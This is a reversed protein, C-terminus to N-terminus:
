KPDALRALRVAGVRAGLLRTDHGGNISAPSVLPGTSVWLNNMGPRWCTGAVEWEYDAQGPPMPRAPFRCAGVTLAITPQRSASAAPTATITVLLATPRAMSFRIVSHPAATWRFPDPDAEPAHWGPGFPWHDSMHVAAAASASRLDFDRKPGACMTVAGRGEARAVTFAPPAAFAFMVPTPRGTEPIVLTSLPWEGRGAIVQDLESVGAAGDRATPGTEFPISRPEIRAAKVPLSDSILLRVGGPAADVESGHLIFSGSAALLSVDTWADSRLPACPVHGVLAAVEATGVWKREFLFGFRELETRGGAFAVVPRERAVAQVLEVAQPVILAPQGALQSSLLLNADVRRSEAVIATGPALDSVRFDYAMAARAEALDFSGLARLRVRSLTPEAVMLLAVTTALTLGARPSVAQQLWTLAVAAAAWGCVALPVSVGLGSSPGLWYWAGLGAVLLALAGREERIRWLIILGTVVLLAGLPTFERSLVTTLGASVDRGAALAWLAGAGPPMTGALTAWEMRQAVAATAVIPAVAFATAAALAVLAGWRRRGPPLRYGLLVAVAPVCALWAPDEALALAACVVTTAAHVPRSTNLWHRGAWVAMLALLPSLADCTWAVGRGWFTAGAAVALMTLLLPFPPVGSGALWFVVLALASTAAAADRLATRRGLAVAIAGRGTLSSLSWPTSFPIDLAPLMSQTWASVAPSFVVERETTGIGRAGGAVFALWAALGVAAIAAIAARPPAAVGLQRSM